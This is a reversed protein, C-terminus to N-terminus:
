TLATSTAPLCADHVAVEVEKFAQFVATDHDGRLFTSWVKERISGHVLDWPLAKAKRYSEIDAAHRLKQGRRSVVRYTTGIPQTPDRVLLGEKELWHWAEVLAGLIQADSRHLSLETLHDNYSFRVGGSANMDQLLLAGLEEPELRLLDNPDHILETLMSM